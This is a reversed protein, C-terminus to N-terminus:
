FFVGFLFFFINLFKLIKSFFIKFFRSKVKKTHIENSQFSKVFFLHSESIQYKKEFNFCGFLCVKHANFNRFIISHKQFIFISFISNIINKHWTKFETTFNLKEPSFPFMQNFRFIKM